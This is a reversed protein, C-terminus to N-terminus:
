QDSVRAPRKAIRFKDGFGFPSRIGIEDSKESTQKAATLSMEQGSCQVGLSGRVNALWHRSGWRLMSIGNPSGSGGSALALEVHPPRIVNAQSPQPHDADALAM